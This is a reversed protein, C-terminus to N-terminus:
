EERQGTADEKKIQQATREGKIRHPLGEDKDKGMTEDARDVPRFASLKLSANERMLEEIRGVLDDNGGLEENARNAVENARNAARLKGLAENARNVARMESLKLNTNEQMLIEIKALAENARDVARSESLKLSAIEKTLKQNQTVDSSLQSNDQNPKVNKEDDSSIDIIEQRQYSPGTKTRKDSSSTLPSANKRKMSTTGKNPPQIAALPKMAAHGASQSGDQVPTAKEKKATAVSQNSSHGLSSRLKTPAVVQNTVVWDNDRTSLRARKPAYLEILEELTESETWPLSTSADAGQQAPAADQNNRTSLSVSCRSGAAGQHASAAVQDKPSMAVKLRRKPAGQQAPAAVQNDPISLGVSPSSGAPNDSALSGPSDPSTLSILVDRSLTDFDYEKYDGNLVKTFWKQFRRNECLVTFSKGIPLKKKSSGCMIKDDYTVWCGEYVIGHGYNYWGLRVKDNTLFFSSAINSPKQKYDARSRNFIIGMAYSASVRNESSCEKTEWKQFQVYDILASRKSITDLIANPVVMKFGNSSYVM